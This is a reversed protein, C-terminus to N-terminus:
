EFELEHRRAPKVTGAAFAFYRDCLALVGPDHSVVVLSVRDAISELLALVSRRSEKDLHTTPEDLFLLRPQSVLARAISARQWQGGSLEQTPQRALDAVDALELAQDVAARDEADLPRLMGAGACRGLEVLERVTLRLTGQGRQQPAWGVLRLKDRFGRTGPREGFLSLVGTRLPVLGLCAKLFTSKGSGNPGALGIARAEPPFVLSVGTLVPHRGYALGLGEAQVLPGQTPSDM